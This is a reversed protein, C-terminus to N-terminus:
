DSCEITLMKEEIFVANAKTMFCTIQQKKTLFVREAALRVIFSSLVIRATVVTRLLKDFSIM